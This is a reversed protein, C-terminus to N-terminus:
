KVQQVRKPAQKRGTRNIVGQKLGQTQNAQFNSRTDKKLTQICTIFGRDSLYSKGEMNIGM